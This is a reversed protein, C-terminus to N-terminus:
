NAATEMRSSAPLMQVLLKVGEELEELKRGIKALPREDASMASDRLFEARGRAGAAAELRDLEERSVFFKIAVMGQVRHRRRGYGAFANSGFNRVEKRWRQLMNNNVGCSEAVATVPTGADVRRIADMKFERTYKQRKSIPTSTYSGLERRWRHVITPSVDCARAVEAVSAVKLWGVATEKFERTFTRHSFGM